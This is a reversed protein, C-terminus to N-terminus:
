LRRRHGEADDRRAAHEHEQEGIGVTLLEGPAVM